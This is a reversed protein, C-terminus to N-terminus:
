HDITALMIMKDQYKSLENLILTAGIIIEKSKLGMQSCLAHKEFDDAEQKPSNKGLMLSKTDTIM